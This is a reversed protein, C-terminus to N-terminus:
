AFPNTKRLLERFVGVNSGTQRAQERADNLRANAAAQDVASVDPGVVPDGWAAKAKAKADARAEDTVQGVAEKAQELYRQVHPLVREHEAKAARLYGRRSTAEITPLAHEALPFYKRAEDAWATKKTKTLERELFENRKQLKIRERVADDDEDYQGYEDPERQALEVEVEADIDAEALERVIDDPIDPSWAYPEDEPEDPAEPAAVSEADPAAPATSSPVPPEAEVVQTASVPVEGLMQAAVAAAAEAKDEELGM